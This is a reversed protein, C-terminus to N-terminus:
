DYGNEKVHNIVAVKCRHFIVRASGESLGLKAAIELFSYGEIRLAMVQKTRDDRHSIFDTILKVKERNIYNDEISHSDVLDSLIEVESQKKNKRLHNYWMHRAISFLWTKVSCDGKFKNISKIAQLFTEQLLDESTDQNKTLSYIYGYVDKSYLRYFEAISDTM